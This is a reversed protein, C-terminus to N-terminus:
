NGPTLIKHFSVTEAYKGNFRGFSYGFQASRCFKWVLFNPSIVTNKETSTFPVSFYFVSIPATLKISGMLLSYPLTM